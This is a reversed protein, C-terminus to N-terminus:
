YNLINILYLLRIKYDKTGTFYNKDYLRVASSFRHVTDGLFLWRHIRLPTRHAALIAGTDRRLFESSWLGLEEPVNSLGCDM